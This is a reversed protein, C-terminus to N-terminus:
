LIVEDIVHIPDANYENKTFGIPAIGWDDMKHAAVMQPYARKINTKYKINLIVLAIKKVFSGGRHLYDNFSGQEMTHFQACKPYHAKKIVTFDSIRLFQIKLKPAIDWNLEDHAAVIAPYAKRLRILNDLDAISIAEAIFNVLPHLSSHLYWNFSYLETLM